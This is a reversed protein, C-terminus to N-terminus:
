RAEASGPARRDVVIQTTREIYVNLGVCVGARLRNWEPCCRRWGGTSPRRSRRRGPFPSGSGARSRRARTGAASPRYEPAGAEQGGLMLARMEVVGVDLRLLHDAIQPVLLQAAPLLPPLEVQDLRQVALVLLGEALVFNRSPRM